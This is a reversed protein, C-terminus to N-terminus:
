VIFYRSYKKGNDDVKRELRIDVDQNRLQHITGCLRYDKFLSVAELQSLGKVPHNSLYQFVAEIKTNDRFGISRTSNM